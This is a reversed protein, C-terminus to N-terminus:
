SLRGLGKKALRSFNNLRKLWRDYGNNHTHDAISELQATDVAEDLEAGMIM